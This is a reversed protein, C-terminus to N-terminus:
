YTSGCRKMDKCKLRFGWRSLHWSLEKWASYITKTVVALRPQADFSKLLRVVVVKTNALWWKVSALCYSYPRIIGKGMWLHFAIGHFGWAMHWGFPRKKEKGAIGGSIFGLWLPTSCWRSVFIQRRWFWVRLQTLCKWVWRRGTSRFLNILLFM